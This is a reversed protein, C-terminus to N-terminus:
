RVRVGAPPRLASPHAVLWLIITAVSGGIFTPAYLLPWLAGDRKVADAVANNMTELLILLFIAGLIQRWIGFRSFAGLLLTAFGILAAVVTVTAQAIRDNAEFLMAGRSTGLDQIRVPTATLLDVTSLERVSPIRDGGPSILSGIDYAFEEFQTVSLRQSNPSLTQAMGDRMLITPGGERSVLFAERAIYTTQNEPDRADTLFISDLVGDRRIDRIYFTVGDLPHLFAGPTLFRATVDRSIEDQRDILAARSAPVLVHTLASVMGAVILGFILVPRAMRFPSYGTSQVVVLESESTMRNTVYVAAAFAAIPLVARIVTPLSLLTLTLFVGASQGDSILTDFLRVARNVWYVGVLVLAFFGFVALLQSLMYRDFRAM